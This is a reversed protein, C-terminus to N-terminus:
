RLYSYAVSAAGGLLPLIILTDLFKNYAKLEKAKIKLEEVEGWAKASSEVADALSRKYIDIDGRLAKNTDAMESMRKSVEVMNNNTQIIHHGSYATVAGAGAIAVKAWREM